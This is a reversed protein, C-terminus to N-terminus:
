FLVLHHKPCSDGKYKQFYSVEFKPPIVLGYLLCMNLADIDFTDCGEIAKLRENLMRYKEAIQIVEPRKTRRVPIPWQANPELFAFSHYKIEDHPKSHGDQLILHEQIAPNEIPIRVFQPQAQDNM